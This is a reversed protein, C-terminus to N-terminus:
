IAAVQISWLGFIGPPADQWGVVPHSCLQLVEAQVAWRSIWILRQRGRAQRFEKSQLIRSQHENLITEYTGTRIAASIWTPDSSTGNEIGTSKTMDHM